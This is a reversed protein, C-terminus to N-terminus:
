FLSSSDENEEECYSRFEALLGHDEIFELAYDRWNRPVEYDEYEDVIDDMRDMVQDAVLGATREIMMDMIAGIMEANTDYGDYDDADDDYEDDYDDDALSEDLKFAALLDDLSNNKNM